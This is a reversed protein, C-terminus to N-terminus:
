ERCVNESCGLGVDCTLNPYCVGNLSGIPHAVCRSTLKDCHLGTRCTGGQLCSESEGGARQEPKPSLSGSTGSVEVEHVNCDRTSVSDTFSNFEAMCKEVVIVGSRATSINTVFPGATSVCSGLVALALSFFPSCRSM